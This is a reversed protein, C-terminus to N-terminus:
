KGALTVGEIRSGAATGGERLVNMLAKRILDLQVPTLTYLRTQQPPKMVVEPTPAMGDEALAAYFRAMNLVTQSNDGQGISLNAVAGQPTFGRPGYKRTFYDLKDPFSPRSEEPIDI